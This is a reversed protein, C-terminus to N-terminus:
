DQQNDAQDSLWGTIEFVVQEDGDVQQVLQQLRGQEDRKVTWTEEGITLTEGSCRLMLDQKFNAGFFDIVPASVTTDKDLKCMALLMPALESDWAPEGTKNRRDIAPNGDEDDVERQIQYGPKDLDTRYIIGGLGTQQEGRGEKWARIHLQKDVLLTPHDVMVAGDLDKRGLPTYLLELVRMGGFQESAPKLRLWFRKGNYIGHLELKEASLLRPATTEVAPLLGVALHLLVFLCLNRCVAM